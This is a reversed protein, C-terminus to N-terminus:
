NGNIQITEKERQMKLKCKAMFMNKEKRKKESKAEHAFKHAERMEFNQYNFRLTFVHFSKNTWGRGAASSDIIFINILEDNCPLADNLRSAM